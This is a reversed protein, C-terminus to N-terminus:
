KPISSYDTSASARTIGSLPKKKNTELILFIMSYYSIGSASSPRQKTGEEMAMEQANGHGSELNYEVSNIM